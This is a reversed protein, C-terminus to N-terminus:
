KRNQRGKSIEGNLIKQVVEECVKEIEDAKEKPQLCKVLLMNEQHIVYLMRLVDISKEHRHRKKRFVFRM